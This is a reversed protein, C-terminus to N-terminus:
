KPKKRLLVAIIPTVFLGVVVKKLVSSWLLRRFTMDTIAEKQSQYQDAGFDEIYIDKREELYRMAEQQYEDLLNGQLSQQLYVLLAFILIAPTYLLFGVTMGQWFHLIGDNEFKKFEKAAFLIFMLFIIFDFLLQSIDIFPNSDFYRSAFFLAYLFIGCVIAYKLTTKVM